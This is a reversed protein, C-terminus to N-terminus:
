KIETKIYPFCKEKQYLCIFQLLFVTMTINLNFENEVSFLVHTFYFSFPVHQLFSFHEEAHIMDCM